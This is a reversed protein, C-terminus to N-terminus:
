IVPFSLLFSLPWHPLPPIIQGYALFQPCDKPEAFALVSGECLPHMHACSLRDALCYRLNLVEPRQPHSLFDETAIVALNTPMHGLLCLFSFFLSLLWCPVSDPLHTSRPSPVRSSTSHRGQKSSAQNGDSDFMEPIM